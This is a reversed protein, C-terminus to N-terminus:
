RELQQLSRCATTLRFRRRCHSSSHDAGRGGDLCRCCSCRNNVVATGDNGYHFCRNSPYVCLTFKKFRTCFFQYTSLDTSHLCCVATTLWGSVFSTRHVGALQCVPRSSHEEEKREKTITVESCQGCLGRIRLLLMMM